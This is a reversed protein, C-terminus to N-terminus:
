LNSVIKLKKLIRHAIGYADNPTKGTVPRAIKLQKINKYGKKELVTEVSEMMQCLFNYTQTPTVTGKPFPIHEEPLKNLLLFLHYNEITIKLVNAPKKGDFSEVAFETKMAALESFEREIWADVLQEIIILMHYIDNPTVIREEGFRSVILNFLEAISEINRGANRSKEIQELTNYSYSVVEDMRRTIQESNDNAENMHDNMSVMMRTQEEMLDHISLTISNMERVVSEVTEISSVSMPIKQLIQDVIETIAESMSATQKALNGVEKAIVAFGKGAEGARAAEVNANLALIHTQAMIEQITQTTKSINSAMQSLDTILKRTSRSETLATESIKRSNKVNEAIVLNKSSSLTIADGLKLILDTVERSFSAVNQAQKSTDQAIEQVKVSSAMLAGSAMTLEGSTNEIQEEVVKEWRKQNRERTILEWTVLIRRDLPNNQYLPVAYSSIIESGIDLVSNVPFSPNNLFLAKQKDPNLYFDFYNYATIQEIKKIPLWNCIKNFISVFHNNYFLIEGSPNIVFIGTNINDLTSYERLTKKGSSVFYFLAFLLLSLIFLIVIRSLFADKLFSFAPIVTTVEFIMVAFFSFLLIYLTNKLTM